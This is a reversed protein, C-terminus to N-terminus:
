LAAGVYICVLIIVELKCPERLDEFSVHRLVIMLDIQWAEHLLELAACEVMGVDDRNLVDVGFSAETLAVWLV